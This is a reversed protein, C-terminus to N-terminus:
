ESRLGSVVGCDAFSDLNTVGLLDRTQETPNFPRDSLVDIRPGIDLSAPHTPVALSAM